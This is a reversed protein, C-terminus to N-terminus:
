ITANLIILKQGSITQWDESIKIEVNVNDGIKIEEFSAKVQNRTEIKTKPNTESKISFVEISNPLVIEIKSNKYDLTIKRESIKSVTGLASVTFVKSNLNEILQATQKVVPNAQQEQYAIGIGGGLIFIAFEVIALFLCTFIKINM